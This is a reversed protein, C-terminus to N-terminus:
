PAEYGYEALYLRLKDRARKLVTKVKGETLMLRKAIAAIDEMYFYRLVFIHRQETKLNSLFREIIGSLEGSIAGSDSSSSDPISECLEGALVTLSSDRKERTMERVRDICFARMIKSLFAFLYNRPDKPPVTQWTRMYTDNACEECVGDDNAIRRGLSRLPRGYKLDCEYIGREDREFFLDIIEFDTM